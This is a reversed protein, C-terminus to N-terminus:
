GPPDFKVLYRRGRQDAITFGPSVGNAKSRIVSWKGPAPGQEDNPGRRMEEVTIPRTGSRNTFWASDPVEDITNINEARGVTQLGPRGFLNILADYALSIEHAQAKSADQTDVARAIPDDDYFKPATRAREALLSTGCLLAAALPALRRM